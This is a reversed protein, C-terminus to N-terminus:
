AARAKDIATVLKRRDLPKSLWGVAKAESARPVLDSSTQGSIFLAPIDFLNRILIAAEVGDREGALSVDMVVLDPREAEILALATQCRDASGIVVCGAEVLADETDMAILPDDEVVLTRLRVASKDAGNHEM